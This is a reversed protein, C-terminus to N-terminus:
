YNISFHQQLKKGNSGQVTKKYLLDGDRVVFKSTKRRIIRKENKSCGDPYQQESIGERSSIRGAIVVTYDSDKHAM